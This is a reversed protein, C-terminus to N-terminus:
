PGSQRLASDILQQLVPNTEHPRHEAVIRRGEDGGELVLASLADFRLLQAEERLMGRLVDFSEKKWLRMAIYAALGRRRLDADKLLAKLMADFSKDAHSMVAETAMWRVADDDNRMMEILVSLFRPSWEKSMQGIALGEVVPNPDEVIETLPMGSKILKNFRSEAVEGNIKRIRSEVYETEYAHPDLLYANLYYELARAQDGKVKFFFRGVWSQIYVSAPSLAAAKVFHSEAERLKGERQLITGLNFFFTGETPFKNIAEALLTKAKGPDQEILAGVRIRYGNISNPYKRAYEGLLAEAETEHGERQLVEALADTQDFDEPRLQIAKTLFEKARAWDEHSIYIDALRTIVDLSTPNRSYEGLLAEEAARSNDFPKSGRFAIRFAQDFREQEFRTRRAAELIYFALLRNGREVYYKALAMHPAPELYRMAFDTRLQELTQSQAQASATHVPTLLMFAVAYKIPRTLVIRLM